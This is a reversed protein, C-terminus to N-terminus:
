QADRNNTEIPCTSQATGPSGAPDRWSKGGASRWSRWDRWGLVRWRRMWWTLVRRRMGSDRPSLTPQIQHSFLVRPGTLRHWQTTQPPENHAGSRNISLKKGASKRGCNFRVRERNKGAVSDWKKETRERKEETTACIQVDMPLAVRGPSLGLGADRSHTNIVTNKGNAEPWMPGWESQKRPTLNYEPISTSSDPHTNSATQISPPIPPFKIKKRPSEPTQRQTLAGNHIPPM